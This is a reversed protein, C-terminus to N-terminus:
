LAEDFGVPIRFDHSLLRVMDECDATTLADSQTNPDFAAGLDMLLDATDRDMHADSEMLCEPCIYSVAFREGDRRSVFMDDGILEIDELFCHDCDVLVVSSM